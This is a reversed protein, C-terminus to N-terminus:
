AKKWYKRTGEKRLTVKKAKLLSEMRKAVTVASWGFKFRILQTTVEDVEMYSLVEEDTVRSGRVRGMKTKTELPRLGLTNLIKKISPSRLAQERHEKPIARYTDAAKSLANALDVFAEDLLGATKKNLKEDLKEKFKVFEARYEQEAQALQKQLDTKTTMINLKFNQRNLV